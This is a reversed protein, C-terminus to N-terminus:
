VFLPIEIIENDRYKNLYCKATYGLTNEFTLDWSGHQATRSCTKSM